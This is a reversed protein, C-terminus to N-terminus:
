NQNYANSMGISNDPAFLNQLNSPENENMLGLNADVNRVNRQHVISNTNNLFPQITTTTTITGVQLGTPSQFQHLLQALM